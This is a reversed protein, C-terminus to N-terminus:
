IHHGAFLHSHQIGTLQWTAIQECILREEMRGSCESDITLSSCKAAFIQRFILLGIWFHSQDVPLVLVGSTFDVTRKM